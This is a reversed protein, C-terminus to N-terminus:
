LTQDCDTRQMLTIWHENARFDEETWILRAKKDYRTSALLINLNPNKYILFGNVRIEISTLSLAWNEYVDFYIKGGFGLIGSTQGRENDFDVGKKTIRLYQINSIVVEELIERTGESADLINEKSLDRTINVASGLEISLEAPNGSLPSDLEDKLASAILKRPLQSGNVIIQLDKIPENAHCGLLIEPKLENGLRALRNKEDELVVMRDEIQKRIPEIKAIWSEKTEQPSSNKSSRALTKKREDAKQAEVNTRIQEKISNLEELTVRCRGSNREKEILSLGLIYRFDKMKEDPYDIPRGETLKTDRYQLIVQFKDKEPLKQDKMKERDAIIDSTKEDARMIELKTLQQVQPALDERAVGDAYFKIPTPGGAGFPDSKYGNNAILVFNGSLGTPLTVTISDSTENGTDGEEAFACKLDKYGQPIIRNAVDCSERLEKLRKCLAENQTSIIALDQIENDNQTKRQQYEDKLEELSLSALEESGQAQSDGGDEGEATPPAKLSAPSASRVQRETPAAEQACSETLLLAALFLKLLNFHSVM